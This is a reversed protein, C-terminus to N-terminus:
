AAICECRFTWYQRRAQQYQRRIRYLMNPVSKPYPAVLRPAHAHVAIAIVHGGALGEEGVTLFIPTQNDMARLTQKKKAALLTKKKTKKQNETNVPGVVGRLVFSFFSPPLAYKVNPRHPAPPSRHMRTHLLTVCATTRVNPCPKTPRPLM